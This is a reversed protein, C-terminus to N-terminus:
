AAAFDFVQAVTYHCRKNGGGRGNFAGGANLALNGPMTPFAFITRNINPKADGCAFRDFMVVIQESAGYLKGRAKTRMGLWLLDQNRVDDGLQAFSFCQKELLKPFNREFTEILRDTGV